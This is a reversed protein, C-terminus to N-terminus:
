GAGAIKEIAAGAEEIPPLSAIEAAMRRAAARFSGEALVKSVADRLEPARPAGPTLSLGAGLAAVRAGNYPQDAFLPTVVVPVGNALAGLLTGSGGHCVVADAHPLVQDQPVFQEVRVGAPVEGLAELPLDRGVTLLARVPLGALGEVVARFAAREAEMRGAVTGMTVYVFPGERGPWWDRLPPAAPRAARFRLEPAAMPGPEEMSVPHM